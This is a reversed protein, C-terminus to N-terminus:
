AILLSGLDAIEQPDVVLSEAPVAAPKVPDARQARSGLLHERGL